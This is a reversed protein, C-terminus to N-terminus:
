EQDAPGSGLHRRRSQLAQDLDILKAEVTDLLEAQRREDPEEQLEEMLQSTETLADTFLREIAQECRDSIQQEVAPDSYLLVILQTSDGNEGSPSRGNLMTSVKRSDNRYIRTRDHHFQPAGFLHELYDQLSSEFDGPVHVIFGFEDRSLTWDVRDRPGSSLSEDVAMGQLRFETSLFRLLGRDSASIEQSAAYPGDHM